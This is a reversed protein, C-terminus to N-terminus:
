SVSVRFFNLVSKPIKVYWPLNNRYVQYIPYREAGFSLKFDDIGTGALNGFDFISYSSGAYKKLVHDTILTLGNKKRGKENSFSALSYLTSGFKGVLTGCLMEDSDSASYVEVQHNSSLKGWLAKMEPIQHPEFSKIKPVSIEAHLKFFEETNETISVTLNSKAAKNLDVNRHHAYGREIKQYGQTLDIKLGGHHHIEYGKLDDFPSGYFFYKAIYGFSRIHELWAGRFAPLSSAAGARSLFIFYCIFPSQYIYKIGARQRCPIPVGLQYSQNEELVIAEWENCSSLYDFSSYIPGGAALVLEDWSQKNIQSQHLIKIGM